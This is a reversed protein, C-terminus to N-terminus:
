SPLRHFRIQILGRTKQDTRTAPLWFISSLCGFSTQLLNENRLKSCQLSADRISLPLWLCFNNIAVRQLPCFAKAAEDLMKQSGLTTAHSWFVLPRIQILASLSERSTLQLCRSLQWIIVTYFMELEECHKQKYEYWGRTTAKVQIVVAGM